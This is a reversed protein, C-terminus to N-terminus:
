KQNAYALGDFVGSGANAVHLACKDALTIKVVDKLSISMVDALDEATGHEAKASLSAIISATALLGFDSTRHLTPSDDSLNLEM